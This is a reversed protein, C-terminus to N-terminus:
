EDDGNPRVFDGVHEILSPVHQDNKPGACERSTSTSTSTPSNSRFIGSLFGGLGFRKSSGGAKTPTSSSPFTRATPTDKASPQSKRYRNVVNPEDENDSLAVTGATSLSLGSDNFSEVTLSSSCSAKSNDM